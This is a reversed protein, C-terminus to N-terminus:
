FHKLLASVCVCVSVYFMGLLIPKINAQIYQYAATHYEILMQLAIAAEVKVPLEKDDCLCQRVMEVATGLNSM